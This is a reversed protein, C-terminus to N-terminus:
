ADSTVRNEDLVKRVLKAMEKVIIPKMLIAQIGIKKATEETIQTSYGSCLIIPIDARISILERALKDGTMQPMTLDTIVLDFQEPQSKFLALAELSSVRSVVTYGLNELLLKGIEIIDPEDDVVLIQERGRPLTEQIDIETEDHYEIIPLDVKFTSGKGIQSRAHIIGGYDKVIGHVASLGMGTGQGIEKTTFFPDYIRELTEPAMGEGTDTVVLEIYAGPDLGPYLNAYEAPLRIDKLQVHLTGGTNRMAHGANSCLNMVIQHLKTADGMVKSDSTLDHKIAITTPLSARLLKLTEKVISKVPVPSLTQESQRSFTLIQEVLDKARKGARLINDIYGNLLGKKSIEFQALEAFGLIASLINNFDHAIGGALTGIAEMKQVQVLQNELRSRDEEAKVRDSIDRGYAFFHDRGEFKLANATIEVPFSTDDKRRLRSEFCLNRESKLKSAFNPWATPPLKLDFDSVRMTRLEDHSYGLAQCVAQNVYLVQSDERVWFFLDVSHEVWHQVLHIQQDRRKRETIDRVIALITMEPERDLVSLSVEADFTEGGFRQHLWAFTIPGPSQLLNKVQQTVKSRSTSGDYQQPPSLESPTKGIFEAPGCQFTELAKKNFDTIKLDSVSITFIADPADNFLTRYRRDTECKLPNYIECGSEGRLGLGQHELAHRPGAARRRPTSVANPNEKQEFNSQTSKTAM